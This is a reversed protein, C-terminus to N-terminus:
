GGIPFLGDIYKRATDLMENTTSANIVETGPHKMLTSLHWHESAVNATWWATTLPPEQWTITFGRYVENKEMERVYYTTRM